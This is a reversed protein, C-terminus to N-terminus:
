AKKSRRASPIAILLILYAVVGGGWALVSVCFLVRWMWAPIPTAQGFAACVGGIMRGEAPLTLDRLKQWSDSQFFQKIATM